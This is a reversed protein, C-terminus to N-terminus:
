ERIYQKLDVRSPADVSVGFAPLRKLKPTEVIGLSLEALTNEFEEDTLNAWRDELAARVEAPKTELRERVVEPLRALRGAKRNEFARAEEAVRIEDLKAHAANLQEELEMKTASLTEVTLDREAVINELEAARSIAAGARSEADTLKEDRAKLEEAFENAKADFSAKLSEVLGDLKADLGLEALAEALLTRIEDMTIDEEHNGDLSAARLLLKQRDIPTTKAPDEDVVGHCFQDGPAVDLLSAAIFVPDHIIQIARGNDDRAFEIDRHRSLASMSVNVHGNRGMEALMQDALQPFRWAWVAGQALIGSRKAVPDFAYEASYWYGRPEGDHDFDLLGAYGARFLLRENVVQELESAVFAHGNNNAGEHAIWATIHLMRPRGDVMPAPRAQRNTVADSDLWEVQDKLDATIHQVLDDFEPSDEVSRVTATVVYEADPRLPDM